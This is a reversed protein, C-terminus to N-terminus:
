YKHTCQEQKKMSVAELHRLNNRPTGTLSPLMSSTVQHSSLDGILFINQTIQTVINISSNQNNRIKTTKFFCKYPIKNTKFFINTSYMVPEHPHHMLYEMGYRIDLLAPQTPDNMYGSICVTLYQLDYHTNETIDM